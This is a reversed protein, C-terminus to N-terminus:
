EKNYWQNSSSLNYNLSLFIKKGFSCPSQLFFFFTTFKFVFSLQGDKLNRTSFQQTASFVPDSTGRVKSKESWYLQFFMTLPLM